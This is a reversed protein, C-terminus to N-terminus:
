AKCDCKQSSFVESTICESHVRCIVDAQSVMNVSVMAVHEINDIRYVICRFEGFATPLLTESYRISM